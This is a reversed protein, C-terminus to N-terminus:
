RDSRCHPSKGCGRRHLFATADRATVAVFNVCPEHRVSVGFVAAARMETFTDVRATISMGRASTRIHPHAAHTRAAAGSM